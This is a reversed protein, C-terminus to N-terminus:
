LALVILRLTDVINGKGDLTRVCVQACSSYAHVKTLRCLAYIIQQQSPPSLPFAILRVYKIPQAASIGNIVKCEQVMTLKTGCRM